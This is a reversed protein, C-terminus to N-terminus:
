RRRRRPRYDPYDDLAQRAWQGWVGSENDSIRALARYFGDAAQRALEYQLRLADYDDSDVYTAPADDGPTRAVLEAFRFRRISRSM